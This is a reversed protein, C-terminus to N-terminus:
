PLSEIQGFVLHEGERYKLHVFEMGRLFASPSMGAICEIEVVRQERGNRACIAPELETKGTVLRSLYRSPGAGLDSWGVRFCAVCDVGEPERQAGGKRLLLCAQTKLEEVFECIARGVFAEGDLDLARDKELESQLM